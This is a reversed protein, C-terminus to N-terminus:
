KDGVPGPNYILTAMEPKFQYTILAWKPTILTDEVSAVPEECLLLFTVEVPLSSEVCTITESQFTGPKKYLPCLLSVM